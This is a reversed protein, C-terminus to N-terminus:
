LKASNRLRNGFNAGATMKEPLIMRELTTTGFEPLGFEGVARSQFGPPIAILSIGGGAGALAPLIQEGM